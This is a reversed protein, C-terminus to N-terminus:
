RRTERAESDPVLTISSRDLCSLAEGSSHSALTESSATQQLLTKPARHAEPSSLNSLPLATKMSWSCNACDVLACRLKNRSKNNCCPHCYTSSQNSHISTSTSEHLTTSVSSTLVTSHHKIPDTLHAPNYSLIKDSSTSLCNCSTELPGENLGLASKIELPAIFVAYVTRNDMKGWFNELPEFSINKDEASKTSKAISSATSGAAVISTAASKDSKTQTLCSLSSLDNVFRGDFGPNSTDQPQYFGAYITDHNSDSWVEKLDLHKSEKEKKCAIISTPFVVPGPGLPLHHVKTHSKQGSCISPQVSITSTEDNTSPISFTKAVSLSTNLKPVTQWSTTRNSVVFPNPTPYASAASVSNATTPKNEYVTESLESIGASSSQLSNHECEESLTNTHHKSPDHVSPPVLVSVAPPGGYHPLSSLPAKTQHDSLSQNDRQYYTFKTNFSQSTHLPDTRTSTLLMSAASVTSTQIITIDQNYVLSFCQAARISEDVLTSQSYCSNILDM